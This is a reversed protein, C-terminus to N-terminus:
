IQGVQLANQCRQRAVMQYGIVVPVVLTHTQLIPSPM